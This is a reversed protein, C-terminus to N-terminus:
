FNNISHFDQQIPSLFPIKTNAAIPLFISLIYYISHFSVLCLSTSELAVYMVVGCQELTQKFIHPKIM